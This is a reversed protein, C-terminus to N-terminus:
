DMFSEVDGFERITDLADDVMKAFYGTDIDEEKGLAQVTESELWRYGKTGTVADYKGPKKPDDRVLLGGGCGPKIPCYQGCRGIFQLNHGEGDLDENMDLYMTTKVSKTVCKDSFIIPEKSFLTKFVYPVQFQTGTATWEGSEEKAVYVARNVLCIREYKAEIEFTYGYQEGFKYIFDIIRDDPAVVKISDTKCHIVEYGRSIVENKLAIMFLAGRKAVINDVDRPDKFPCEFSASCYGYTSNLVLKLANALKKAESPDDL